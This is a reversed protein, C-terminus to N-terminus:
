QLQCRTPGLVYNHCGKAIEAGYKPKEPLWNM